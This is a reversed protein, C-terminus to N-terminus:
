RFLFGSPGRGVELESVEAGTHTYINVRGNGQFGNSNAVYVEQRAKDYGIGYIGSGNIFPVASSQAVTVEVVSDEYDPWGSSLTIYVKEDEGVAIDGTPNNVQVSKAQKLSQTSLVLSYFYAHDHTFSYVWVEGNMEFFKVPSGDVHITEVVTESAVDIIELVSEESSAVWIFNGHAFLDEPKSSVEVKKKVTGGNLGSVIAVYSDPTEYSANYPGYDSIFLKDGSVALSRPQDLDGIVAGISKFDGPNVIEVKGTNAVLYLRDQELIMDQLLGAFPRNNELEFINATLVGTSPDLHYVEGDNAGYAGENMILVGTDYQGRPMESGSDSCSALIILLALVSLQARYIFRM